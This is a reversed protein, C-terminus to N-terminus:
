DEDQQAKLRAGLSSRSVRKTRGKSMDRGKSYMSASGNGNMLEQLAATAKKLRRSVQMQSIGLREAVEAQPVDQFYILEIIEALPEKLQTILEKVMFFDERTDTRKHEKIDMLTDILFTDNDQSSGSTLTQDLSVLTRRRDVEYAETIKNKKVDQLVEAIELDTPDRGFETRLKHIIKNIRFSLEQLERPARIMSTKDRLYHRIEGTILHTAYTTFKAGAEPKFYDIAKILGISGIQILDDVPDTSRRALGHAIKKVLNFNQDVIQDRIKKDQTKKYQALLKHLAQAQQAKTLQDDTTMAYVVLETDLALPM